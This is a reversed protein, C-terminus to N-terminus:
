GFSATYMFRRKTVNAVIDPNDTKPIPQAVLWCSIVGAGAAVEDAGLLAAGGVALESCFSITVGGTAKGGASPWVDDPDM